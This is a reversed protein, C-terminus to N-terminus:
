EMGKTPVKWNTARDGLGDSSYVVPRVTHRTEKKRKKQLYGGVLDRIDGEQGRKWRLGGLQKVKGNTSLHFFSIFICFLRGCNDLFSAAAGFVVATCWFTRTKRARHVNAECCSALM